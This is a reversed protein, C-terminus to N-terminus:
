SLLCLGYHFWRLEAVDVDPAPSQFDTALPQYSTQV